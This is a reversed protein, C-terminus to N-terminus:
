TNFWNGPWLYSLYNTSKKTINENPIIETKPDEIEKNIFEDITFIFKYEAFSIVTKIANKLYTIKEENNLNAWHENFNNQNIEYILKNAKNTDDSKDPTNILRKIIKLMNKLCFRIDDDIYTLKELENIFFEEEYNNKQFIAFLSEFEKSLDTPKPLHEDLHKFENKQEIM